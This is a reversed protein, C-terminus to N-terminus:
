IHTLNVKDHTKNLKLILTSRSACSESSTTQPREQSAPSVALCRKRYKSDLQRSHTGVKPLRPWLHQDTRGGWLSDVQAQPMTVWVSLLPWFLLFRCIGGVDVTTERIWLVPFWTKSEDWAVIEYEEWKPIHYSSTLGFGNLEYNASASSSAQFEVLWRFCCKLISKNWNSYLCSWFIWTWPHNTSNWAEHFIVSNM